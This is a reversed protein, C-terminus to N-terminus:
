GSVGTLPGYYKTLEAWSHDGQDTDADAPSLREAGKEGYWIKGNRDRWATASDAVAQLQDIMSQGKVVLMKGLEVASSADLLLSGEMESDSEDLIELVITGNDRSLLRMRANDFHTVQTSM